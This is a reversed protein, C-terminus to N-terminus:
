AHGRSPDPDGPAPPTFPPGSSDAPGSSRGSASDARALVPRPRRTRAGASARSDRPRPGPGGPEAAARLIRRGACSGAACPQVHGREQGPWGGVEGGVLEPLHGLCGGVKEGVRRWGGDGETLDEVMGFGDHQADCRGLRQRRDIVGRARRGMLDGPGVCRLPWGARQLGCM